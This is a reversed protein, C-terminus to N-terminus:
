MLDQITPIIEQLTIGQIQECTVAENHVLFGKIGLTSAPEIDETQSNGFLLVEDPALNTNELVENLFNPNPKSFRSHEYSCIYDFDEMRLGLFELRVRVAELPFLPNTVLIAKLKKDHMFDLIQRPEATHRYFMKTKCFTTKYFIDFKDTDSTSFTDYVSFFADWFVEENTKDGNNGRMANAGNLVAKITKDKDYGYKTMETGILDFYCKTFAKEDMPLLTGDLDFM